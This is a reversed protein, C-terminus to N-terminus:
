CTNSLVKAVKVPHGPTSEFESTDGLWINVTSGAVTENAYETTYTYKKVGNEYLCLKFSKGFPQYPAALHGETTEQTHEINLHTANNPTVSGTCAANTIKVPFKTAKELETGSTGKYVNLTVQSTPVAVTADQGPELAVSTPTIKFIEPSNALCDGAYVGWSTVFPFLDGTPYYKSSVPSAAKSEYKSTLAEYEGKTGFAGFNTSGVEFDPLLNMSTNSVVFTDGTAPKGEHTFEATIEAGQNLSVPYHTTVNPAVLVEPSSKNIAGAPTVDGLKFAEVAVKTAPVAGFIVCGAEGTTAEIAGTGNTDKVIATVGAVPLLPVRDNTVDVELGSGDPPTIISSQVVAPRKAALLQPWTVTSSIRLYNGTRSTTEKTGTIASCSASQNADSIWEGSQVITYQEGNVTQTYTHAEGHQLENLTSAADSRLEEQSTAALVSAENHHRQDATTRNVVDFGTFTAISILGVLLASVIVEM